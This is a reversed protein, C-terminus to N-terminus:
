DSLRTLGPCGSYDKQVIRGLVIIYTSSSSQISSFITCPKINLYISNSNSYKKHITLITMHRQMIYQLICDPSGNKRKLYCPMHNCQIFQYGRCRSMLLAHFFVYRPLLYNTTFCVIVRLATRIGSGFMNVSAGAWTWFTSPCGICCKLRVYRM